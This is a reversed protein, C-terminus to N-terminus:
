EVTTSDVPEVPNAAQYLPLANYIVSMTVVKENKFLWGINVVTKARNGNNNTGSWLLWAHVWKDGDDNIIMEYFSDDSFSYESYSSASEQLISIYEDPTIEEGWWSNLLVTATDTFLSRLTEWDGNQYAESGKKALDIEPSDRVYQKESQCSIIFLALSILYVSKKM